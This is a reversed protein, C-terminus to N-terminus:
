VFKRMIIQENEDGDSFPHRNGDSTQRFWEGYTIDGPVTARTPAARRAEVEAETAAKVADGKRWYGVVHGNSDKLALLRGASDRYMGKFRDRLVGNHDRKKALKVAYAM